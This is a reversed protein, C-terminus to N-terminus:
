ANVATEGASLSLTDRRTVLFVLRQPIGDELQPFSGDSKGASYVTRQEAACGIVNQLVARQRNRHRGGHKRGALQSRRAVQSHGYADPVNNKLIRDDFFSHCFIRPVSAVVALLDLEARNDLGCRLKTDIM